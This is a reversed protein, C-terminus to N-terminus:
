NNINFFEILIWVYHIIRYKEDIIFQLFFLNNECIINEPVQWNREVLSVCRLM